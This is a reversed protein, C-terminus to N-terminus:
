EMSSDSDESSSYEAQSGKRSRRKKRRRSQKELQTLRKLMKESNKAQASFSKMADKFEHKRANISRAAGSKAKGADTRASCDKTSRTNEWKPAWKACKHCFKGTHHKKRDNNGWKSPNNGSGSKPNGGGKEKSDGREESDESQCRAPDESSAQLCAGPYGAGGKVESSFFHFRQAGKERLACFGLSLSNREAHAQM